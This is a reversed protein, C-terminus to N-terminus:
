IVNVEWDQEFDLKTNWGDNGITHQIDILRLREMTGLDEDWDLTPSHLAFVTGLVLDNRGEFCDVSAKYRAFKYKDIIKTGEAKALPRVVSRFWAVYAPADAIETADFATTYPYSSPFRTTTSFSTPNGRAEVGHIAEATSLTIVKPRMGLSGVSSTDIAFNKIGNGRPDSGCYIILYNITDWIGYQAKGLRFDTGERLIDGPVETQNRKRWVFKEGDSDSKIYYYYSGDGTYKDQSLDSIMQYVPKDLYAYDIAPFADGDSKVDPNDTDWTILKGAAKDAVLGLLNQIILPVTNIAGSKLYTAPLISKLLRESANVGQLTMQISGDSGVAKEWQNVIGNFVFTADFVATDETDIEVLDDTNGYQKAFVQIKDDFGFISSDFSPELNLQMQFADSKVQINVDTQSDIVNVIETSTSSWSNDSAKAYHLIKVATHKM